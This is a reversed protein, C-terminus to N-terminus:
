GDSLLNLQSFAPQAPATYAGRAQGAAHMGQLRAAAEDRRRSLVAESEREQALIERLLADCEEIQRACLARAEPSQWRRRQPDQARFPDIAREARQLELLPRQKAGLLDLLGSLNGAEILELQRRGMDRLQLLCAHKARILQVLIDTELAAM